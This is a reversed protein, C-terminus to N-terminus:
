EPTISKIDSIIRDENKVSRNKNPDLVTYYENSALQGDLNIEKFVPIGSNMVFVGKVNKLDNIEYTDNPNAPNVLVDGLKVVSLDQMVYSDGTDDDTSVVYIYIIEDPKGASSVPNSKNSNSPVPRKLIVTYSDSTQTAEKKFIFNTPIKLLTRDIIADNPIKLGDAIVNKIKFTISRENIFDLMYKTMSFVIYTENKTTPSTIIHVRADHPIYEGTDTDLIYITAESDKKWDAPVADSPVYAAIYWTNSKIIKFVDDEPLLTRFSDLKEVSRGITQEKSLSELKDIGLVNELGDAYYSVIGSQMGKIDFSAGDIKSEYSQRERVLNVLSGREENLMMKNRVNLKQQIRDKLDYISEIDSIIFENDILRKIQNDADKVDEDFLSYDKRTDQIKLINDDITALESELKKVEDSDQISCILTGPKVREGEAVNFVPIGETESKYVVEDRIIIGTFIQKAEVSGFIVKTESYMGKSMALYVYFGIYVLLLVFFIKSILKIQSSKEPHRVVPMYHVNSTTRLTSDERTLASKVARTNQYNNFSYINASKLRKSPEDWGPTKLKSANQRIISQKPANQGITNQKSADQRITNQKSAGQRITYQKSVNQKSANQKSANHRSANQKPSIRWRGAKKIDAM